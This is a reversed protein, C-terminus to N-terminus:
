GPNSNSGQDLRVESATGEQDDVVSNQVPSLDDQELSVDRDTPDIPFPACGTFQQKEEAKEIAHDITPTTKAQVEAVHAAIFEQAQRVQEEAERKARAEEEAKKVDELHRLLPEVALFMDTIQQRFDNVRLLATGYCYAGEPTNPRNHHLDLMWKDLDHFNSRIIAVIDYLKERNM